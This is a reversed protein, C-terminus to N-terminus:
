NVIHYEENSKHFSDLFGSTAYLGKDKSVFIAEASPTAEIFAIGQEIGLLFAITSLADAEASSDAIITVSSLNSEIPYGTEPDLIHHYYQNNEIFYREYIGSTVITKNQVKVTGIPTGRTEDPDQIGISWLSGSPKSGVVAINGGLDILASRVGQSLLYEKIRDAAYGKGISGLDLIMANEKLFITNNNEDTEVKKYDTLAITYQIEEENPIHAGENGINWLQVLPGIAPNYRGDTKDAYTIAESVLDFTSSSVQVPFLGASENVKYIESSPNTRSLEQDIQHLLDEIDEFLSNPVSRDYIKVQVITDFVFFSKGASMNQDAVSSTSCGALLLHIALLILSQLLIKKTM